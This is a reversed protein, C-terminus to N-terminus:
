NFFTAMVKTIFAYLLLDWPVVFAKIYM